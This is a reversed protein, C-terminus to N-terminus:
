PLSVHVGVSGVPELSVSVGVGAGPSKSEQGSSGGGSSSGAPSSGGGPEGSTGAPPGGSGAEVSVQVGGGGGSSQGSSGSSGTQSTPTNGPAPTSGGSGPRGGAASQQSPATGSPAAVGTTPSTLGGSPSGASRSPAQAVTRRLRPSPSRVTLSSASRKAQGRRHSSRLGVRVSSASIAGATESAAHGHSAALSAGASATTRAHHRSALPHGGHIIAAGTIAVGATIAFVGGKVALSAIGLGGGTGLEAIREGGAGETARGLAWALLPPPTLASIGRRVGRLLGSVAPGDAIHFGNEQGAGSNGVNTEQGVVISQRRLPRRAALAGRLALAEAPERMSEVALRQAIAHLWACPDEIEVAGSIDGWAQLLTLRLLEEAADELLCLQRCRRLLMRRYRLTLAEFAAPSGASALTLLREDSQGALLRTKIAAGM